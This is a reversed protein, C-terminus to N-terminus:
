GELRVTARGRIDGASAGAALVFEGPEAVWGRGPAWFRFARPDLRVEVVREEGPELRVKTFGKLESPPRAVSCEPDSMYVQVVEAGPRSGTNRLPVRVTVPTDPGIVAPEAAVEGWEFTTYGLGHGLWWLPEVGAAEYHRHGILLGEGYVVRGDAGPWHDFAPTDELRAAFTTPLRGGPENLGSLVDALAAGGDQGPCWVHLLAPVQDAWSLDVPSGVNVVVVTRPCAAAVKRALEVQDAPLAFSPRDRGETEIDADIGLVVVAADAGTAIDVARALRGPDDPEELRIDLYGMPPPDEPPVLEVELLHATGEELDLPVPQRGRHSGGEEAILTVGDVTVKVAGQGRIRLLHRGTLSPTIRGAVRVSWEGPKVTLEPVQGGLWVLNSRTSVMEGAPAGFVRDAFYSLLLGQRDGGPVTTRRPDLRQARTAPQSGPEFVLETGLGVAERLGELPTVVRSPKVQASGGGQAHLSDANPGLVAVRGLGPPLPLVPSGTGVPDNRLLVMGEAAARRALRARAPDADFREPAIPGSAGTRDALLAVRRAARHVVDESLQGKDVAAVLAEGRYLPPGPMEVDLGAELAEVTSHTAYWDSVVTGDWGWERRLLEDLLWPHESCYTGGLRNYAAMVSWAGAGLLAEEFPLLYVERLVREDVESSITMREHESDNAVLHKVCAAVGQSQVGRVYAAATIASLFPDESFCEFNRGGLPHRHLNVTPALLVHAGKSRAEAGLARGVEEVLAPDWSSALATGCPFLVSSLGGMFDAGRAGNPGDSMKVPGLGLRGVAGTTWLDVGALLAAAEALEMAPGGEPGSRDDSM